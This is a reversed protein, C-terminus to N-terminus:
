SFAQMTCIRRMFICVDRMGVVSVRGEAKGLIQGVFCRLNFLIKFSLSNVM